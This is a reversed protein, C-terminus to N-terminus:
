GSDGQPVQGLPDERLPRRPAVAQGLARGAAAEAPSEGSFRADSIGALQPHVDGVPKGAQSRSTAIWESVEPHSSLLRLLEGGVYGAAGIVAVRM